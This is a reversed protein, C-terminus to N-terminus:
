FPSGKTVLYPGNCLPNRNIVGENKTETIEFGKLAKFLKAKLRYYKDKHGKADEVIYTNTKVIIYTFDAIYSCVKTGSVVLPFEVQIMLNEIVGNDELCKLAIYRASEFKSDFKIGNVTTKTANRNNSKASETKKTKSHGEVPPQEMGKPVPVEGKKIREAYAKSFDKMSIGM